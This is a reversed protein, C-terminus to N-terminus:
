LIEMTYVNIQRVLPSTGPILNPSGRGVPPVPLPTRPLGEQSFFFGALMAVVLIYISM